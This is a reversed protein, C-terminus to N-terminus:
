SLTGCFAIMYWIVMALFVLAATWQIWRNRFIFALATPILM